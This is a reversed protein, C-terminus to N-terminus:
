SVELLGWSAELLVKWFIHWFVRIELLTTRASFKLFRFVRVPRFVNNTLTEAEWLFAKVFLNLVNSCGHWFGNLVM